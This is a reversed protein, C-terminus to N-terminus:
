LRAFQLEAQADPPAGVPVENLETAAVKRKHDPASPEANSKNELAERADTNTIM